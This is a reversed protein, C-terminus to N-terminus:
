EEEVLIRTEKNKMEDICGASGTRASFKIM